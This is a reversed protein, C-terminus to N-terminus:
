SRGMRSFWGFTLPWLTGATLVVLFYRIMRALNPSFLLLLPQKLASKVLLVLCLGGVLKLLQAYWKADTPFHLFRRDILEVVMLGALAGSLTCANERASNLNELDVEPSFPYFETYCVFALSLLLLLPLIQHIRLPKETRLMPRLLLICGVAMAAGTLTDAPTHVGLYMRSFPVLVCLALCLGKMWRRPVFLSLSGFTGVANQSHGSPFSYGTAGARASEVITFDPDRVWPRPIRCFIKLFQNALTGLFGVAMLFYGKQKDGCWFLILVAVLFLTESGFETFFQMLHDLFPTRISELLSLFNM